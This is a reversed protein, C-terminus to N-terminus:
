RLPEVGGGKPALGRRQLCTIYARRRAIPLEHRAIYQQAMSGGSTEAILRAVEPSNDAEAQCQGQPTSLDPPPACRALALPLALAALLTFTKM